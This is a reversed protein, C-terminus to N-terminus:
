GNSVAKIENAYVLDFEPTGAKPIDERWKQGAFYDWPDAGFLPHDETPDTRWKSISEDPKNPATM